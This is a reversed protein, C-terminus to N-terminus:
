ITTKMKERIATASISEIEEGLSVQEIKYGVDRGYILNTINPMLEIKYKGFFKEPIAQEIKMKVFEFDFPNKEDIGHTDRVAILVQDARELAKEFLAQHGDHWPQFRGLLLVTPKKNDWNM